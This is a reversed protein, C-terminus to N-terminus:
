TQSGTLTKHLVTIATVGIKYTGNPLKTLTIGDKKLAKNIAKVGKLTALNKGLPQRPRPAAALRCRRCRPAWL